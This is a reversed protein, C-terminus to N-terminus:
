LVYKFLTVLFLKTIIYAICDHTLFPDALQLTTLFVQTIFSLNIKQNRCGPM